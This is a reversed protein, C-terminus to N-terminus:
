DKRLVAKVENGIIYGILTSFKPSWVDLITRSGDAIMLRSSFIHNSVNVKLDGEESNEKLNLKYFEPLIYDKWLGMRGHFGHIYKKCALFSSYDLKGYPGTTDKLGSSILSFEEPNTNPLSKITNYFSEITETLNTM